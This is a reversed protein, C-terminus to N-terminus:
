RPADQDPPYFRIQNRGADKAAYMAMDAWKLIDDKELNEIGFLAVGISATCHHEIAQGPTSPPALVYPEALAQQIKLAIARARLAAEAQDPHLETAVVVFEDGGFRAVTDVERINQRIRRAAEVLLLDGIEHGHHDNLPKFNDLDLFLAAGWCANRRCQAMAHGLRERLLRRNPLGTLMDYYALHRIQEELQKRETIDSCLAVYQFTQGQENRVASITLQEPYVEGNKRRNWIEGQWYGVEHLQAWMAAYFGTDHRGSKLLSPLKGLLEDRSYGTIRSFAANVDVIVGTATTLMIGEFAHTFVSAAQQLRAEDRKRDTIDYIYGYWVTTGDALREPLSQGEQWRMEGSPLHVRYQLRWPTLHTASDAVAANFLSLDAPDVMSFGAQPDALVRRVPVGTLREFSDSLYTFAAQGDPTLEYRYIAGPLSATIKNLLELAEAKDQQSRRLDGERDSLTQLLLKFSDILKGIEDNRHAPLNVPYSATEASRVLLHTTQLLPHLERRLMWWTLLGAVLTLLVTAILMRTLLDRIPAFAEATTMSASVGWDVISLRKVSNMVEVGFVNHYVQTGEYGALFRDIAPVKGPPSLPQMIRGHRSATIILRQPRAVLFFNGSQGYKSRTLQDLFEATQLTITGALAGVVEGHEGFIPVAMLFYPSVPHKGMIPQGISSKGDHLAVAIADRNLFNVGMRQQTSPYEAIATGGPRTVFIGGSFFSALAPKDDLYAQMQEPNSLMAPTIRGSVTELAQLRARLQDDIAQAIFSVTSYQQAGLQQQMDARLMFSTYLALSWISLLFVCLTFLTLRTKFSDRRCTKWDM